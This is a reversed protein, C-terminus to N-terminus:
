LYRSLVVDADLPDCPDHLRAFLRRERQAEEGDM